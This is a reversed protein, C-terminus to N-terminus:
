YYKQHSYFAAIDGYSIESLVKAALMPVMGGELSKVDSVISRMRQVLTDFVLETPNLEPYRAPLFILLLRLPQGRHRPNPSHVNWCYEALADQMAATHIAANDMVLCAGLPFHGSDVVEALFSNFFVATGNDESVTYVVPVDSSLGILAFVNHRTRFDGPVSREDIIGSIPDRRVKGGWLERGDFHKEDLFYLKNAPVHKVFELYEGLRILNEDKYKDLPVLNAEGPSMDMDQLFRCLTAISCDTGTLLSLELKYKTLTTAPGWEYYINVVASGDDVDLARERNGRSGGSIVSELDGGFYGDSVRKAFDYGVEARVALETNLGRKLPYWDEKLM